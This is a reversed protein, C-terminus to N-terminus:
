PLWAMRDYAGLDVGKLKFSSTSHMWGDMHMLIKRGIQRIYPVFVLNYFIKYQPCVGM